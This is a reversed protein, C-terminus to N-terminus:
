VVHMSSLSPAALPPLACSASLGCLLLALGGTGLKLTGKENLAGAAASLFVVADEGTTGNLKPPAAFLEDAAVPEGNVNLADRLVALVVEM